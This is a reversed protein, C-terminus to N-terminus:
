LDFVGDEGSFLGPGAKMESAPVYTDGEFNKTDCASLFLTGTIGILKLVSYFGTRM